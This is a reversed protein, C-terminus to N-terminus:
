GDEFMVGAQSPIGSLMPGEGIACQVATCRKRQRLVRMNRRRREEMMYACTGMGTEMADAVERRGACTALARVEEEKGGDSRRLRASVRWGCALVAAGRAREDRMQTATGMCLYHPL